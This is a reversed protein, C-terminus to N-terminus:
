DALLRRSRIRRAFFAVVPLSLPFAVWMLAAGSWFFLRELGTTRRIEALKPEFYPAAYAHGHSSFRSQMAGIWERMRDLKPDERLVSLCPGPISAYMQVLGFLQLDVTGPADGGFFPADARLRQRWGAFLEGIEDRSPASRTRRATTILTFFYFISFARWFHNWHRRIARPHGDRAWSFRHWFEWPRATRDLAGTMFTRTLARREPEGVEAYGLEALIRGSDLLWPGDDVRAAPMLVGSRLFVSLPPVTVLTHDIGQDHLGLLVAQVWPSHDNGYVRVHRPRTTASQAALPDTVCGM